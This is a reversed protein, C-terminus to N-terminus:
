RHSARSRVRRCYLRTTIDDVTPGLGGMVIVADSVGLLYDIVGKIAGADDGVAMVASVLWGQANLEGRPM